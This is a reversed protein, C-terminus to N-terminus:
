WKAAGGQRHQAICARVASVLEKYNLPKPFVQYYMDRDLTELVTSSIATIVIVRKLMDPANEVLYHVVGFGDLRPMLLDLIVVDYEGSKLKEIAEIGDRASDTSFGAKELNRGAIKQTIEDDDVVLIHGEASRSVTPEM